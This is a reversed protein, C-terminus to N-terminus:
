PKVLTGTEVSYVPYPAKGDEFWDHGFCYCKNDESPEDLPNLLYCAGPACPSCFQAYTFFPSKVIFIDGDDGCEAAYGEQEYSFSLPSDPLCEEGMWKVEHGCECADGDSFDEPLENGCKPCHPKGYYAESSDYWAQGVENQPIVGFRIGTESHRNTLGNGYDIGKNTMSDTGKEGFSLQGPLAM